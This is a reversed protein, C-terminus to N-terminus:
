KLCWNLAIPLFISSFIPLSNKVTSETISVWALIMLVKAPFISSTSFAVHGMAQRKYVDLGGMLVPIHMPLAIPGTLSFMHFIMPLIIGMALLLGSLIVENTTFKRNM